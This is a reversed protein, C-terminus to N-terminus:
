VGTPARDTIEVSTISRAVLVEAGEHTVVYTEDLVPTGLSDMTVRRVREVPDLDRVYPIEFGDPDDASRYPQPKERIEITIAEDTQSIVTGGAALAERFWQARNAQGDLPPAPQPTVVVSRVAAGINADSIDTRSRAVTM